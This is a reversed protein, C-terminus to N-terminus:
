WVQGQPFRVSELSSLSDRGSTYFHPKCGGSGCHHPHLPLSQFDYIVELSCQWQYRVAVRWRVWLTNVVGLFDVFNCWIISGEFQMARVTHSDEWLTMLSDDEHKQYSPELSVEIDLSREGKLRNNCRLAAAPPTNFEYIAKIQKDNM